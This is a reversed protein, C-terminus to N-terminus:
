EKYEQKIVSSYIKLFVSFCGELREEIYDNNNDRLGIEAIIDNKQARAFSTCYSPYIFKYESLWDKIENSTCRDSIEYGRESLEDLVENIADAFKKVDSSNSIYRYEGADVLVQEMRIRRPFDSNHDFCISYLKGNVYWNGVKNSELHSSIKCVYNNNSIRMDDMGLSLMSISVDGLLHHEELMKNVTVSDMGYKLYGFLVSDNKIEVSKTDSDEIQNKNSNNGCSAIMSLVFANLIFLFKKM